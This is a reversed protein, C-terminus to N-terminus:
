GNYAERLMQIDLKKMKLFAQVVRQKAEIDNSLLMEDMKRPVIQWSVGFEDKLWGCIEAEPVASLREWYYDIEAQTDCYVIFSFAENFDFAHAYDNENLIFIVDEYQQKSFIVTGEGEQLTNEPNRYIELMESNKFTELYHNIAEEARGYQKNIFMMAPYIKQRMEGANTDYMLQWSVGFRDQVWGYRESFPYKGLEMLPIGGAVLKEWLRDIEDVTECYVMLSIAPNLKFFPGASIAVFDLGALQFGLQESDGSPTNEVVTSWNIKSGPFLSVYFSVADKADTDFWLSPVIKQM